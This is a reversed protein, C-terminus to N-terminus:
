KFIGSIEDPIHPTAGTASCVFSALKNACANLHELDYGCLMGLAIAATFADGAGVSDQVSVDFGSFSSVEDGTILTSGQGGKTLIGLKLSYKEVIEKLICEAGADIGLLNGVVVIEDDNIKLVNAMKLSEKIINLSYYTQRLNIDFIKLATEPVDALFQVISKMSQPSRQALAGFCVADVSKALEVSIDPIYDWAVDKDITYVPRGEEDLVVSVTGTPHESDVSLYHQDINLDDLTTSIEIGLDDNGIRSVIFSEVRGKGIAKAHYVFNAPAGGLMKGEPLLDWLIEGLGIFKYAMNVGGTRYYSIKPSKCCVRRALRKQEDEKQLFELGRVM